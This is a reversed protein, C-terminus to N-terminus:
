GSLYYWALIGALALIMVLGEACAVAIILKRGGDM